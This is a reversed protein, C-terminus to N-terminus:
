NPAVKRYTEYRYGPSAADPSAADPSAVSHDECEVLEYQKGVFPQFEPFFADGAYEGLVLTLEWTDAWTLGEAYIRSGGVLFIKEYGQCQAIAEALSPAFAVGHSRDEPGPIYSLPQSTVVVNLRDGLPIGEIDQQWTHRGMIVAHGRTLRQFRASDPPISWPVKGNLGIM